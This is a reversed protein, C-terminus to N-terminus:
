ASARDTERTSCDGCRVRPAGLVLTQDATRAALAADHTVLLVALGREDALELLLQMVQQQSLPDLRSSAEDAFLLVPQLLLVRALALRQLEGGSVEGPRRALLAEDLQLRQLLAAIARDPIRHLRALDAFARGLRQRPAFAAPPEQYLKQFRIPAIGASRQVQGQDPPTLGLLVNGLTTKGCGSPGSIATIQGRHLRIDLKEFLTRSGYQKGLGRAQLVLDGKERSQRQPWRSPQAALLRRSYPHQPAQLLQAADGQELLRGNRMVGVHGGLRRALDLDHSITFLLRGTNVEHRLRAAVSDRLASDLGKTPEDALLVPCDAAHTIAIAARQCMGGSLQFPYQQGAQQLGVEDLQQQTLRQAEHKSRRHILRHVESVQGQVPMTPDLALWPEQPLLALKRGWLARRQQPSLALLNQGDLGIHGRVDLGAPLTGMVAQMVLSKGSGSAGLLTLPRGAEVRLNINDVLVQGASAIQLNEICLVPTM